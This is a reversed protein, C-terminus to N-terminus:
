ELLLLTVLIWRSLSDFFVSDVIWWFLCLLVLM